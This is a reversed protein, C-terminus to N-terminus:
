SVLKVCDFENKSAPTCSMGRGTLTTKKDQDCCENVDCDYGPYLISFLVQLKKIEPDEVEKEVIFPTQNDNRRSM